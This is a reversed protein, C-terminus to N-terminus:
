FCPGYNDVNGSGGGPHRWQRHEVIVDPSHVQDMKIPAEDARLFVRVDANSGLLGVGQKASQEALSRASGVNNVKTWSSAMAALHADAVEIRPVPHRLARQDQEAM